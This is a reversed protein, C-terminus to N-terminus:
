YEKLCTQDTGLRLHWWGENVEDETIDGRFLKWRFKAMTLAYPYFALKGLAKQMLM